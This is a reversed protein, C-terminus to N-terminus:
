HGAASIRAGKLRRYLGYRAATMVAAVIWIQVMLPAVAPWGQRAGQALLALALAGMAMARYRAPADGWAAKAMVRRKQVPLAIALILGPLLWFAPSLGPVAGFAGGMLLGAFAMSLVVAAIASQGRLSEPSTQHALDRPLPGAM